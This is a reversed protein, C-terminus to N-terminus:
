GLDGGGKQGARAGPGAARAEDDVERALGRRDAGAEVGHEGGHRIADVKDAARPQLRVGLEAHGESRFRLAPAVYQVEIAHFQMRRRSKTKELGRSGYHPFPKKEM